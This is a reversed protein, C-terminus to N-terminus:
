LYSEIFAAVEDRGHIVGFHGECLIDAQLTLLYQLSCRYQSRDSHLLPHLPGHVDQGFLVLKGESRTTLVASGPSHGPVHHMVVLLNGVEFRRQSEEVEIDVALPAPAAGYWLAATAEPDGRRLFVADERHAVLRAGTEQRLREAGGTHDYHCHTLFIYRVRRPDVGARKLNAVVQRHGEGTGADVLAAEGDGSGGGSGGRLLYLAADGPASLGPGGILDIDKTVETVGRREAM